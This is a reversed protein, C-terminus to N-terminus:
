GTPRLHWIMRGPPSCILNNQGSAVFPKIRRVGKTTIRYECCLRRVTSGWPEALSRPSQTNWSRQCNYKENHNQWKGALKPLSQIGKDENELKCFPSFTLQIDHYTSFSFHCYLCCCSVFISSKAHPSARALHKAFMIENFSINILRPLTGPM